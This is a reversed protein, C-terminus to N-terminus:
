SIETRGAQVKEEKNTGEGPHIKIKKTLSFSDKGMKEECGGVFRQSGM